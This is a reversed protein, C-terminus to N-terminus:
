SNFLGDVLGRVSDRFSNLSADELLHAQDSQLIAAALPKHDKWDTLKFQRIDVYVDSLNNSIKPVLTIGDKGRVIHYHMAAYLLAAGCIMGAMFQRM